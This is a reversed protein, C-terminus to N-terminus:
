SVPREMDTQSEEVQAEEKLICMDKFIEILYEDEIDIAHQAIDRLYASLLELGVAIGFSNRQVTEIDEAGLTEDILEFLHNYDLKIRHTAM